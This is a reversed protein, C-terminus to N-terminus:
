TIREDDISQFCLSYGVFAIIYYLHGTLCIICIILLVACPLLIAHVHHGTLCIICLCYHLVHCVTICSLWDFLYYLPLLIICSVDVHYGTLWIIYIYYYLVHCDHYM